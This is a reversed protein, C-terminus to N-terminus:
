DLNSNIWELHYPISTYGDPLSADCKMSIIFSHVGIQGVGDVILPSGSDGFCAAGQSDITCILDASLDKIIEQCVTKELIYGKTYQLIDPLEGTTSLRGWGALLIERYELELEVLPIPQTFNNFLVNNVTRVLAIDNSRRSRVYDPHTRFESVRHLVANALSASGISVFVKTPDIENTCHGSTLLWSETIISAGCYHIRFNNRLSALYPFQGDVAAQGGAIRGVRGARIFTVGLFLISITFFTVLLKLM